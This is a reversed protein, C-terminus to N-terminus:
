AEDAASSAPRDIGDAPLRVTVDLGGDVRAIARVTGGHASAISAVLPLGLGYGDRGV